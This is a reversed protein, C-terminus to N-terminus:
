KFALKLRYHKVIDNNADFSFSELITDRVYAYYVGINKKGKQLIQNKDLDIITFDSYSLAIARNWYQYREDDMIQRKIEEM